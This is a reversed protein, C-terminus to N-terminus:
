RVDAAIEDCGAFLQFHLIVAGGVTGEELTGLFFGGEEEVVEFGFELVQLFAQIGLVFVADEDDQLAHIGAALVAADPLDEGAHVGVAHFDDGEFARGRKFEVVVEEPADMRLYRAVAFDDDEVAGMIFVDDGYADFFEEVVGDPLSAVFVDDVEFVHEDAFSGGDDFDKEVDGLFFLLFAEFGAELVGLFEPFEFRGVEGVAGHPVFELGGILVKQFFGGGVGCRPVDDRAVAFPVAVEDDGFEEDFFQAGEVELEGLRFDVGRVDDDVVSGALVKDPESAAGGLLVQAAYGPCAM